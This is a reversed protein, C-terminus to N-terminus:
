AISNVMAVADHIKTWASGFAGDQLWLEQQTDLAALCGGRLAIQAVGTRELAWTALPAGLDGDRARLTGDVSVAARGADLAFALMPDAGPAHTQSWLTTRAPAGGRWQVLSLADVVQAARRPSLAGVAVIRGDTVAVDAAFGAAGTGDYVTGGVFLVDYEPPGCAALAVAAAVIVARKM